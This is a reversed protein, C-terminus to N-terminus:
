RGFISRGLARVVNEREKRERMKERLERRYEVLRRPLREQAVKTWPRHEAGDRFTRFKRYAWLEHKFEEEVFKMMIADDLFGLGPIHDPVVDHPNSFYALAALARSAETKPLEYDADELMQILDELTLVAESVFSPIREAERVRAILKKVERLVKSADVEAANEKATRYLDRFYKADEEDLSFTVKFSRTAM